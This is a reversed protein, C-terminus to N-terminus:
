AKALVENLVEEAHGPDYKELFLDARFLLTQTDGPLAREAADYADNADRPSRLLQAARGVLSLGVGDTQKIRDENYDNVLAMLVPEADARRGERLLVMGLELQLAPSAHEKPVSRLTREAAGIDGEYQQARATWLAANADGIPSAVLQALASVAEAYRGTTVLVQGLGLLAPTAQPADLLARFDAEADRYASLELRQNARALRAASSLQLPAEARAKPAAVARTAAPHCSSLVASLAVVRILIRTRM